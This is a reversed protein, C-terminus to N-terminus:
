VCSGCCDSGVEPLKSGSGGGSGTAGGVVGGNQGSPTRLLSGGGEGGAADWGRLPKGNGLADLAEAAAQLSYGAEALVSCRELVLYAMIGLTAQEHDSSSDRGGGGGGEGGGIKGNAQSSKTFTETTGAGNSTNRPSAEADPSPMAEGTALRPLLLLLTEMQRRYVATEDSVSRRGSKRLM